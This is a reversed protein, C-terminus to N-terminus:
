KRLELGALANPELVATAADSQDRIVEGLVCARADGVSDVCSHFLRRPNTGM